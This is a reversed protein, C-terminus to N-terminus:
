IFLPPPPLLFSITYVRQINIVFAHKSVFNQIEDENGTSTSLYGVFLDLDVLLLGLSLLTSFDFSFVSLSADNLGFIKVLKGSHLLNCVLLSTLSSDLASQISQSCYVKVTVM